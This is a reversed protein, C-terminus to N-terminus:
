KVEIIASRKIEDMLYDSFDKMKEEKIMREIQSDPPLLEKEIDQCRMFFLSSKGMPFPGIFRNKKESQILHRTKEPFRSPVTVNQSYIWSKKGIEKVKKQLSPCSEEKYLLDIAKDEQEKPLLLQAMDWLTMTEKKTGERKEILLLLMYGKKVWFPSSVQGIDMKELRLLVEKSLTDEKQWNLSVFELGKTVNEFREGKQLRSLLSLAKEKVAEKSQNKLVPLYVKGIFYATKQLDAKLAKKKAAVEEKSVSVRSNEKQNELIKWWLVNSEIVKLLDKKDIGKQSLEKLFDKETKGSQLVPGLFNQEIEKKSVSIKEKKAYQTKLKGEILNELAKQSLEKEKLSPNIFNLTKKRVSLDFSSIIEDNVKAKIEQAFLLSTYLVLGIMLFFVKKFTM